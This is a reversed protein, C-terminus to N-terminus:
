VTRRGRVLLYAGILAAIAGIVIVALTVEYSVVGVFLGLAVAAIGVVLLLWAVM